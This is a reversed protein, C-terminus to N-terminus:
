LDTCFFFGFEAKLTKKKKPKNNAKEGINVGWTAM